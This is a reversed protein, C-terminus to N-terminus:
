REFDRDVADLVRDALLSSGAENLHIGDSERVITDHGDIPMSDRYRAGPTFIPVTDVVRVQSRWPEAAVGIAANVTRAISQRKKERPTPLTIWYVRAAGARRYTNMMQRVRQAYITAWAVGCCTVDGRGPVKFAYGDNAGIFVVTADPKKEAVQRTSLKGWDVVFSNSIGSGLHPDRVVRVGDSSLRRALEVDLPMSMSDGTVLLTHLPRRAPAPAGIAPPDFAEPTVPPVGSQAAGRQASLSPPGFGGAGDDLDDDPSLWATADHAAEDFPLRDALWGAPKGVALVLTRAIGPKMEHGARRVAAGELLALLLVCVFVAALSQRASFRTLGLRDFRNM